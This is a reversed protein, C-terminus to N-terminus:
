RAIEFFHQPIADLFVELIRAVSVVRAQFVHRWGHSYETAVIPALFEIFLDSVDHWLNVSVRPLWGVIWLVLEQCHEVAVAEAIVHSGLTERGSFSLEECLLLVLFGGFDPLDM